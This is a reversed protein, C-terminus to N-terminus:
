EGREKLFSVVLRGVERVERGSLDEFELSHYWNREEEDFSSGLVRAEVSLNPYHSSPGFLCLVETGAKLEGESRLLLGGMSLNAVRGDVLSRNSDLERIEARLSTPIRLHRRRQMGSQEDIGLERLIVRAWGSPQEYRVGANYGGSLRERCWIVEGALRDQEMGPFASAIEVRAGRKLRRVDELRLGNLGLDVVYARDPGGEETTLLIPYRCFVRIRSRLDEGTRTRPGLAIQRLGELFKTLVSLSAGFPAPIGGM